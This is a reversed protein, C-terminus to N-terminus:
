HVLSVCVLEAVSGNALAGCKLRPRSTPTAPTGAAETSWSSGTHMFGQVVAGFGANHVKVMLTSAAAAAGATCRLGNGSIEWALDPRLRLSCAPVSKPEWGLRRIIGTAVSSGLTAALKGSGDLFDAFGMRAALGFASSRAEIMWRSGSLEFALSLDYETDTGPWRAGTIAIRHGPGNTIAMAAGTEVGFADRRLTWSRGGLVVEAGFPTAHIGDVAQAWSTTPLILGTGLGGLALMERRTVRLGAPRGNQALISRRTWRRAADLEFM